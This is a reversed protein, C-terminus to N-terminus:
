PRRKKRRRKDTEDKSNKDDGGQLGRLLDGLKKGAEERVVGAILSQVDVRSLDLRPKLRTGLIPIDVRSGTLKRAYETVPGRVGLRELMAAGIPLSVVLDLTEDLGVSGYFKMSFEDTFTLMFNDYSIRGDKIAFDLGSIRVAYQDQEPIGGLALLEAFLGGPQMKMGVLDLQGIGRSHTKLMEGRPLAVDQTRLSVTGEVRSMHLFIPNIRSLMSAGLERTIAVKDLITIKGPLKLIPDAATLDIAGGLRVNGQSAPITTAPLTLKGDRLSPSLKAGEMAVGYLDASDWAINLGSKVGRFAPTVGPTRMPGTIRFESKSRGKVVM